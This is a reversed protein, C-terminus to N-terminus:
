RAAPATAFLPPSPTYAARCYELIAVPRRVSEPTVALPKGERLTAYLDGYFARNDVDGRADTTWTEEHWDLTERNYSRDPTPRPDVPREPMSAWDVWRWHLESGTGRLGGATGMIQWRDLSYAACSTLELDVTPGDPTKIVIKAHDEGDGSSLGNRLDCYIEMEGEGIFHAAHDLLHPGNNALAGAGYDLRTQWDWRRGFSQWAIRVQLIQGLRGSRVVELVKRFLPEYRRNQFPVVLRGAGAAAALMRDFDAVTLAFPKECLVNHGAQLGAIAHESHLRNFTSVVLLDYGDDAILDAPDAYSRCGLTEEAQRRRSEDADAVAVVQFQEPLSQITRVHINWGSRGLGAVGVRVPGAAAGSNGRNV